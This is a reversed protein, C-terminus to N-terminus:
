ATHGHPAAAPTRGGGEADRASLLPSTCVTCSASKPAFLMKRTKWQRREFALGSARHRTLQVPFSQPNQCPQQPPQPSPPPAVHVMHLRYSVLRGTAPVGCTPAASLQPRCHAPAHQVGAFRQQLPLASTGNHQPITLPTAASIRARRSQTTLPALCAGSRKAGVSHSSNRKQRPTYSTGRGHLRRPRLHKLSCQAADLHRGGTRLRRCRLRLLMRAVRQQQRLALARRREVEDDRASHDHVPARRVRAARYLRYSEPPSDERQAQM